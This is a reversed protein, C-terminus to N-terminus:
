WYKTVVIDLLQSLAVKRDPPLDRYLLEVLEKKQRCSWWSGWDNIMSIMYKQSPSYDEGSGLLYEPTTDLVFAIKQLVENSPITQHWTCCYRSVASRSVGIKESLERQTMKRSKLKGVLRDGFVIDVMLKGGGIRDM